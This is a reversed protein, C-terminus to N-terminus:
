KVGASYLYNTSNEGDPGFSFAFAITNKVPTEQSTGNPFTVTHRFTSEPNLGMFLVYGRGWPDPRNVREPDDENELDIFQIGKPNLPNPKFLSGQKSGIRRFAQYVENKNLYVPRAADNIQLKDTFTNTGSVIVSIITTQNKFPDRLEVTDDDKAQLQGPWFGYVSKYHISAQALASAETRARNILAYSRVTKITPLVIALLLSLVGVVMTLEIVSFAACPTSSTRFNPLEPTRFIDSVFRRGRPPSQSGGNTQDKLHGTKAM